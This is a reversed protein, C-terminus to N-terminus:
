RWTNKAKTRLKEVKNNYQITHIHEKAKSDYDFRQIPIKKHLNEISETMREVKEELAKNSGMVVPSYELEGMRHMRGLEAVEDNTLNGLMKNQSPNLIREEGDFRALYGDKGNSFKVGGKVGDAVKETGDIFAPLSSIISVLATYDSITKGLANPQDANEGLLKLGAIIAEQRQEKKRQQEKKRELEAAKREESALSKKAEENGLEAATQIEQIRSQIANAETELENVRSANANKITQEIYNTAEDYIEKRQQLIEKEKDVTKQAGKLIANGTEEQLEEEKKIREKEAQEAQKQEEKTQNKKISLRQKELSNIKTLESRQRKTQQEQASLIEAIKSSTEQLDELNSNAVGLNEITLETRGALIDNLLKEAELRTKADKGGILDALARERAIRMRENAIEEELRMAEKLAKIRSSIDKTEDEGLLRLASIDKRLRANTIIFRAADKELQQLRKTVDDLLKVEREIEDGIGKFSNKILDLGELINGKFIEALGEGMMSLRDRLVSFATSIATVARELLEAGQQTQTFYSILSGLAIVIAGIGTSALAVKFIRMAKSGLNTATALAKQALTMTGTASANATKANTDANVAVTMGKVIKTLSSSIGQLLALERSMFGTAAIGEKVGDKYFGVSRTAQGVSKDISKLKKDLLNIQKLWLKGQKTNEKGSAALDKYKKRLEILTRSEKEYAGILGLAERANQKAQKNAEQLQVKRQTLRETNTKYVQALKAETQILAKKTKKSEEQVVNQAKILENSQKIAKNMEVIGKSSNTNGKSMSSKLITAYGKISEGIEKQVVLLSKSQKVAKELENVLTQTSQEKAM